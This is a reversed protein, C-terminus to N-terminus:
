MVPPHIVLDIISATRDGRVGGGRKQFCEYIYGGRAWQMIGRYSSLTGRKWSSMIIIIIAIEIM